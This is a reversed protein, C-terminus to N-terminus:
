IWTDRAKAYVKTLNKLGARIREVNFLEGRQLPILERLVEPSMSLPFGIDASEIRIDRIHYQTGPTARIAAAVSMEADESQLETLKTTAYTCQKSDITVATEEEIEVDLTTCECGM